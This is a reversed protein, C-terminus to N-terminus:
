YSVKRGELLILTKEKFNIGFKKLNGDCNFIRGTLRKDELSLEIQHMLPPGKKVVELTYFSINHDGPSRYVPQYTLKPDDCYNLFKHLNGLQNEKGDLLYSAQARPICAKVTLRNLADEQFVVQAPLDADIGVFLKVLWKLQSFFITFNWNGELLQTYLHSYDSKSIQLEPPPPCTQSIVPEDNEAVVLSALSALLVVSKALLTRM